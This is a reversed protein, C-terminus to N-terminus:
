LPFSMNAKPFESFFSNGIQSFTLKQELALCFCFPQVSPARVGNQIYCGKTMYNNMVSVHALRLVLSPLM